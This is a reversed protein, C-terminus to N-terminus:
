QTDVKVCKVYKRKKIVSKVDLMFIMTHQIKMLFMIVLQAVGNM